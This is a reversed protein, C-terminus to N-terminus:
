IYNTYIISYFYGFVDPLVLINMHSMLQFGKPAEKATM